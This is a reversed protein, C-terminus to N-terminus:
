EGKDKAIRRFDTPQRQIIEGNPAQCKIFISSQLPKELLKVEQGQFEGRLCFLMDGIKVNNVVDMANERAIKRINELRTEDQKIWDCARSTLHPIESFDKNVVLRAKLESYNCIPRLESLDIIRYPCGEFNERECYFVSMQLLNM